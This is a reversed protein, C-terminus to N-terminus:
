APKDKTIGLFFLFARRIQPTPNEDKAVRYIAIKRMTAPLACGSAAVRLVGSNAVVSQLVGNAGAILM